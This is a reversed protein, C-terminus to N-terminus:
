NSGTNSATVCPADERYEIAILQQIKGDITDMLFQFEAKAKEKAAKMKEVMALKPDFEDPLELDFDVVKITTYSDSYMGMDCPHFGFEPETMYTPEFRMCLYHTVTKKM